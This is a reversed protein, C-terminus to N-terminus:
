IIRLPDKNHSLKERREYIVDLGCNGREGCKGTGVGDISEGMDVGGRIGKM